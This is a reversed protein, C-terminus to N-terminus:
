DLLSGLMRALDRRARFLRSKVTGVPRGIIRAVEELERGEIEALVFVTRRHRDLRDLATYLAEERERRELQEQPSVSRDRVGEIETSAAPDIQLVRKRYRKRLLTMCVRTGIRYVWTDLSSEYRFRDLSRFLAIFVQQVADDREHRDRPGLLRWVLRLITDRYTCFLEHQAARNGDICERVLDRNDAQMVAEHPTHSHESATDPADHRYLRAVSLVASDGM